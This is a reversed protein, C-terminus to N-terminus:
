GAWGARCRQALSADAVEQSDVDDAAPAILDAFDVVDNQGGRSGVANTCHELHATYGADALLTDRQRQVIQHHLARVVFGRQM